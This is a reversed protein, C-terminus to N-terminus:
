ERIVIGRKQIKEIIKGCLMLANSPHMGATVDIGLKDYFSIVKSAFFVTGDRGIHDIGDKQQGFNNIRKAEHLPISSPLNLHMVGDKVEVPYGGSLGNIGVCHGSHKGETLHWRLKELISAAVLKSRDKYDIPRKILPLYRVVQYHQDQNLKKGNIVIEIYPLDAPANKGVARSRTIQYHHGIVRIDMDCPTPVQIRELVIKKIIPIILDINGCGIMNLGTSNYVSVNVSDPFAANIIMPTKQRNSAAKVIAFIPAINFPIWAGFEVQGLNLSTTLEAAKWWPLLSATNIIIDPKSQEIVEYNNLINTADSEVYSINVHSKCFYSIFQMDNIIPEAYKRRATVYTINIDKYENDLLDFIPKGVAGLGYILINM